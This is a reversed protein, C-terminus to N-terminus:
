DSNLRKIISLAKSIENPPTRKTKKIFYSLIVFTDGDDNYLMLRAMNIRLEYLNATIKKLSERRYEINIRHGWKKLYQLTLDIKILLLNNGNDMLERKFLTLVDSSGSKISSITAM